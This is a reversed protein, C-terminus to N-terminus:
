RRDDSAELEQDDARGARDRQQDRRLAETEAVAVRGDRDLRVGYDDGASARSVYGDRVDREVLSPDRRLPDGYGGGGGETVELVDGAQLPLLSFKSPSRTDFLRQIDHRQGDRVVSFDNPTGAHGGELGWPPIVHRDACATVLAPRLLQLRRTAGLGGRHAGPGASDTNMGYGLFRVPYRTEWVEMSENKANAIIPWDVNNGDKNPRAGTGGPEFLYMLFEENTEPDVGSATLNNGTGLSGAPVRDPAMGRLARLIAECTKICTDAWSFTPAPYVPRVLTGPTARIEILDIVGSNMDIMPDIVAALAVFCASRTGSFTCNVPGLVQRDTGTLDVVLSSGDKIVKVRITHPGGGHGDDEIVETAAYEGDPFDELFRTFRRRSYELAAEMGLLLRDLGYKGALERVRREAVINSALQAQLDGWCQRAMRVNKLIFEQIERNLEGARYLKAPPIILGEQVVHDVTGSWGGPSMGGIDSWHGRNVAFGVHRDAVFMPCAVVVDAQHNAGDYPDNFVIVDGPEFSPYARIITEVADVLAGAHGPIGYAQAIMRGRTDFLGCTFDEGESFCTSYATRTTTLVMEHMISLLYSRIIEATFPDLQPPQSM